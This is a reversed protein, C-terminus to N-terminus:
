SKTGPSTVLRRRAQGQLPNCRDPYTGQSKEEGAPMQCPARERWIRELPRHKCPGGPINIRPMVASRHVKLSWPQFSSLRHIRLRPISASIKQEFTIQVRGTQSWLAFNPDVLSGPFVSSVQAVWRLVGAGGTEMRSLSVAETGQSFRKGEARSGPLVALTPWLNLRGYAKTCLARSRRAPHTHTHQLPEFSRFEARRLWPFSLTAAMGGGAAYQSEPIAAGHRVPCDQSERLSLGTLSTNGKRACSKRM